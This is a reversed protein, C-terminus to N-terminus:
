AIHGPLSGNLLTPTFSIASASDKSITPNIEESSRGSIFMQLISSNPFSIRVPGDFDGSQLEAKGTNGLRVVSMHPNSVDQGDYVVKLPLHSSGRSLIPAQSMIQWGFSKPRRSLWWFIFGTVLGAVGLIIDIEEGLWKWTDDM